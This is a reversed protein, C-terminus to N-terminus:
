EASYQTENSTIVDNWSQIVVVVVDVEVVVVVDDIVVVDEEVADVVLAVDTAADAAAAMVTHTFYFAGILLRIFVNVPLKWIKVKLSTQKQISTL